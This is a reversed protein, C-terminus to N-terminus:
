KILASKFKNELYKYVNEGDSGLKLRIYIGGSQTEWVAMDINAPTLNTYTIDRIKIWPVIEIKVFDERKTTFLIGHDYLVYGGERLDDIAQRELINEKSENIEEM